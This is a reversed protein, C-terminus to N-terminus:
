EIVEINDLDESTVHYSKDTNKEINKESIITHNETSLVVVGFVGGYKVSSGVPILCM